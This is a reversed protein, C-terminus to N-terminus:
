SIKMLNKVVYRYEGNGEKNDIGFIFKVTVIREEANHANDLIRNENASITIDHSSGAPTFPTDGRIQSGSIADDIRYSASSPTVLAGNLDRFTATIVLTTMENIVDLNM